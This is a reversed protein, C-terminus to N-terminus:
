GVFAQYSAKLSEPTEDGKFEPYEAVWWIPVGACSAVYDYAQRMRSALAVQEAESANDFERFLDLCEQFNPQM